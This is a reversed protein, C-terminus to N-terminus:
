DDYKDFWRVRHGETIAIEVVDFGIEPYIRWSTIEAVQLRSERRLGRGRIIEGDSFTYVDNKLWHDLSYRLVRSLVYSRQHAAPSSRDYDSIATLM